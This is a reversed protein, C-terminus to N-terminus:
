KISSYGGAIINEPKIRNKNSGRPSAFRCAAEGVLYKQIVRPRPEVVVVVVVDGVISPRLDNLSPLRSQRHVHGRCRRIEPHRRRRKMKV